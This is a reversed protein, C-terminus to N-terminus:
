LTAKDDVTVTVRATLQHCLATRFAVRVEGCHQSPPRAMDMVSPRLLIRSREVRQTGSLRTTHLHPEFEHLTAVDKHDTHLHCCMSSVPLSNKDRRTARAARWDSNISGMNYKAHRWSFWHQRNTNKTRTDSNILERALFTSVRNQSVRKQSATHEREHKQQQRHLKTM